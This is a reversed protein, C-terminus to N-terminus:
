GANRQQELSGDNGDAGLCYGVQTGARSGKNDQAWRPHLMSRQRQGELGLPLTTGPPHIESLLGSGKATLNKISIDALM